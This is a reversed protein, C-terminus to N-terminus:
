GPSHNEDEPSENEIEDLRSILSDVQLMMEDLTDSIMQHHEDSDLFYRDLEEMLEQDGMDLM